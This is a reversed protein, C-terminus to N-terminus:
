SKKKCHIYQNYESPDNIHEIIDFFQSIYEAFEGFSWERVHYPNKPPGNNDRQILQVLLDRDPTSIVLHEPNMKMIYSMLEDPNMVHEIVDACILLDTKFPISEFNSTVWTKNPYKKRLLSITPELDYGIVQEGTFEPFWKELKFGSGAGLDSITPNSIECENVVKRFLEYVKDQYEDTKEKTDQFFINSKSHYETHLCFTKSLEM